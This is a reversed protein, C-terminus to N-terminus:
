IKYNKRNNRFFTSIINSCEYHRIGGTVSFCHNLRKDAHLNYNLSLAGGKPDYAGFILKSIRAQAMAGLCMPCPELTVYLSCGTLRWNEIFKAASKIALIEAHGCPDNNKEKKNYAKALIKGDQSFIVAGVPVEFERYAQEAEEIAISMNWFHNILQTSTTM